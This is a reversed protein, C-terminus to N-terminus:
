RKDEEPGILNIQDKKNRLMKIVDKAKHLRTGFLEWFAEKTCIDSFASDIGPSVTSFEEWLSNIDTRRFYGTLEAISKYGIDTYYRCADVAHELVIKERFENWVIHQYSLPSLPENGDKCVSSAIVERHLFSSERDFKELGEALAEFRVKWDNSYSKDSNYVWARSLFNFAHEFITPIQAEVRSPYMSRACHGKYQIVLHTSRYGDKKNITQNREIIVDKKDAQRTFFRKIIEVENKTAVVIRLGAIDQLEEVPKGLRQAKSIANRYSKIRSEVSYINLPGIDELFFDFELLLQSLTRKFPKLLQSYDKENM